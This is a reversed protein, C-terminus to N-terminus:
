RATTGSGGQAAFSPSGAALTEIACVVHYLSSARCDQPVFSGDPRMVERWLGPPSPLLYRTMGEISAVLRERARQSASADPADLVAQHWAKVRETQPWLKAAADDVSLADDMTNVAVNRAPDVGHTEGIDILRRAAARAAPREPPENPVPPGAWRMLLWAWEFQHGPEVLRGATGPMPLWEGDFHERLAGSTPDILRQLCLVALEDALGVWTAAESGTSLDRWALAAELLHMHPNSRLPLRRPTAEEFGHTPHSWTARLVRLLAEAEARLHARDPRDRLASALAFLVFAQEYLDFAADVVDGSAHVASVFSGDAPACSRSCSACGTSSTRTPAPCGGM